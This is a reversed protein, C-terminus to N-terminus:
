LNNEAYKKESSVHLIFSKKVFKDLITSYAPANTVKIWTWFQLVLFPFYGSIPNAGSTCTVARKALKGVPEITVSTPLTPLIQDMNEVRSSATQM